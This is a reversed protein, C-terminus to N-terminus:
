ELCKPTRRKHKSDKVLEAVKKVYGPERKQMEKDLMYKTMISVNSSVYDIWKLARDLEEYTIGLEGEDTQGDWLGASPPKDVIENPIDLFKALEFVETKYLYGIPEFDVAGDGWKTFYGISIESKNGTGIVLCNLENAYQYLKLMRIRAKINGLVLDNDTNDFEIIKSLMSDIVITNYRLDFKECLKDIHEKDFDRVKFEPLYYCHVNKSGLAKKALVAIVASDLGGSLGLVVGKANASEVTTKIFDKIRENEKNWDKM